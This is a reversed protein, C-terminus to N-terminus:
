KSSSSSSRDLSEAKVVAQKRMVRLTESGHTDIGDLKCCIQTVREHIEISSMGKETANASAITEDIENSLKRIAEFGERDQNYAENHLLMIRTRNQIGLSSLTAADDDLKKGRALLRQYGCPLSTQREVEAKVDAVTSQTNKTNADFTFSHGLGAVKLTIKDNDVATAAM